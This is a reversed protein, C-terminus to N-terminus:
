RNNNFASNFQKNNRDNYSGQRDKQQYKLQQAQQKIQLDEMHADKHIQDITKPATDKKSEWRSQRLELVDQIMFRIRSSTQKHQVLSQMRKFYQNILDQAKEHDMKRGITTLLKCLCELSEEEKTKLLSDICSYM